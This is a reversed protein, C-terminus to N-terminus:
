SNPYSFPIQGFASSHYSCAKVKGINGPIVSLSTASTTFAKFVTTLQSNELSQKKRLLEKSLIKEFTPLTILPSYVYHFNLYLIPIEFLHRHEAEM